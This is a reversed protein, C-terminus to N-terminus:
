RGALEGSGTSGIQVNSGARALRPVPLGVPGLAVVQGIVTVVPARLGRASAQAAITALTGVVEQQQPTCGMEVCAAPTEPSRGAAILRATIQDLNSRGMLVIVTDIGALSDYPIPAKGLTPDTQGTIVAYSRGLGRHTVPIGAAAPVAHASSVGPVVVCPVGARACCLAEEAGRGFILPDGGKLRAVVAGDRARDVLLTNIEDQTFRQFGPHKGVDIVEARPRVEHLLEPAVLRDHVVVDAQRLLRLGRVTILEADGPGAGILYVTGALGPGREDTRNASDGDM